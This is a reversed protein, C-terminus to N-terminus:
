GVVNYGWDKAKFFDIYYKEKESLQDKDCYCICEFTWNWLGEELMAHHIKQDAITSIGVSGKIHDILRQKVKTSKGIYCKNTKINTIKYIGPKDEIKARTMLEQTLKQLYESWVLKPIIDKNRVQPSVTTLLYHIDERDLEPIQICWYYKEQEEQQLLRFPAILNEYDVQKNRVAFKIEIEQKELNQCNITHRDYMEEWEALIEKEIDDCERRYLEQKAALLTKYNREIEAERDMELRTLENRREVSDKTYQEIAERYAKDAKQIAEDRQDLIDELHERELHLRNLESQIQHREEYEKSLDINHKRILLIILVIIVIGLLGYIMVGKRREENYNIIVYNKFFTLYFLFIAGM